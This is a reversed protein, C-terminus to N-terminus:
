CLFIRHTHPGGTSELPVTSMASMTGGKGLLNVVDLRGM